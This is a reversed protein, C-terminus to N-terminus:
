KQATIQLRQTLIHQAEKIRCLAGFALETKMTNLCKEHSRFLATLFVFVFFCTSAFILYDTTTSSSSFMERM